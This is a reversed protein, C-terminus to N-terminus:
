VCVKDRRTERGDELAVEFVDARSNLIVRAIDDKRSGGFASSPFGVGPAHGAGQLINFSMVVFPASKGRKPAAPTSVPWLLLVLSVTGFVRPTWM